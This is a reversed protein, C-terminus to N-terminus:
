IKKSVVVIKRNTSIPPKCSTQFMIENRSINADEDWHQLIPQQSTEQLIQSNSGGVKSLGRLFRAKCGRTVEKETKGFFCVSYICM